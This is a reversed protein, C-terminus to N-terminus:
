QVPNVYVKTTDIVFSQETKTPSAAAKPVDMKKFVLPIMITLITFVLGGIMGWMASKVKLSNVDLLLSKVDKKLEKLEDIIMTECDNM